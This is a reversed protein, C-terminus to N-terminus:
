PSTQTFLGPTESERWVAQAVGDCLTRLDAEEVVFPPMLYVLKGFPRIWVGQDVFFAQLRAMHVPATLEVVGIAGLVRVDAVCPAGKLPSLGDRLIREIRDVRAQWPSALLLDVSARAVACALPNGMFTPGHMFCGGNRSLTRAIDDTCVTASLTMMGGTLSKGLCLIDPSVGAWEAAFMKGTRGFGTAIEDFILLVGHQDCLRRLDKLYDPHYFWMGGAGQVVPELIVAAVEPGCTDLADKLPDLSAPDFPDGFACAPRDVFIQRALIGSFLSHMGTVPDCVSMAGITDGHYGGRVTIFRTRQGEGRSFRDQLAMKLAIELAVSGSDGYFIRNLGRPLLPLLREGLSVAPEHTLGGFMVHSMRAAQTQIADVLAPHSYGHIACWWSSMGDILRRGDALHLRVGKARVVDQVPLPDTASTYPHWLHDRDFALRNPSEQDQSTRPALRRAVPTLAQALTAWGQPFAVCALRVTADTDLGSLRQFTRANDDQILADTGDGTENPNTENLVTGVVTLGRKKLADLSLLLHNLAGLRNAGVLLVPLDLAVMLDIMSEHDNLPVMLGGAGEIVVFTDDAGCATIEAVLDAVDLTAGGQFAALHPSAPLRFRRLTVPPVFRGGQDQCALSYVAADGDTEDQPDVGTQVPKIAQIKAGQPLVDGLSRLLAATTITKGVGTDTGTVFVGRM